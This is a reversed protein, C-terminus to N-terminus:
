LIGEDKLEKIANKIAVKIISYLIVLGVVPPLLVALLRLISLGALSIVGEPIMRKVHFMKGLCM